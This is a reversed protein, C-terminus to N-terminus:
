GAAQGPEAGVDGAEFRDGLLIAGLRRDLNGVDRLSETPVKSRVWARIWRAVISTASSTRLTRVDTRSALTMVRVSPTNNSAAAHPDECSVGLALGVEGVVIVPVVVEGVVVAAGEGPGVVWLLVGKGGAGFGVVLVLVSAGVAGM